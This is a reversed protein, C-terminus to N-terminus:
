LEYINANRGVVIEMYGAPSGFVTGADSSVLSFAVTMPLDTIEASIGRVTPANPISYSTPSAMRRIVSDMIILNTNAYKKVLMSFGYYLNKDAENNAEAGTQALHEAGNVRIRATTTGAAADTSLLCWMEGRIVFYTGDEAIDPGVTTSLVGTEATPLEIGNLSSVGAVM